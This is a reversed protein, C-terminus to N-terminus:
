RLEYIFGLIPEENPRHVEVEVRRYEQGELEDLRDWHEALTASELLHVDVRPGSRQLRIGPFGQAAGWGADSLLGEVWGRQWTGPIDAVHHHNPQGPALSGYVALRQRAINSSM